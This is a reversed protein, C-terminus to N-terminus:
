KNNNVCLRMPPINQSDLNHRLQNYEIISLLTSVNSTFMMEVLTLVGESWTILYGHHFQNWRGVNRSDRARQRSQQNRRSSSLQDDLICTQASLILSAHTLTSFLHFCIHVYTCFLRWGMRSHLSRSISLNTLQCNDKTVWEMRIYDRIANWIVVGFYRIGRETLILRRKLVILLDEAKSRTTRVRYTNMPEFLDSSSEPCIKNVFNYMQQAVHLERRQTLRPLQADAHIRETSARPEAMTIIRLAINQLKQFVDISNAGMSFYVHDCYDYIPLILTKYMLDTTDRDMINRVRGFLRIKGITKAKMHMAHAKFTLNTDLLIGLYKFTSCQELQQQRYFVRIDSYTNVQQSTGFIQVLYRDTRRAMQWVMQWDIWGNMWENMWGDQCGDQCGDM